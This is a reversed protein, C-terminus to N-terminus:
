CAQYKKAMKMPTTAPSIKSDRGPGAIPNIPTAAVAVSAGQASNPGASSAARSKM